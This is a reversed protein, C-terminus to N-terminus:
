LGFQFFDPSCINKRENIYGSFDPLCILTTKKSYFICLSDATAAIFSIRSLMLKKEFVFVSIASFSIM